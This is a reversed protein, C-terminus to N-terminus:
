ESKTDSKSDKEESEDEVEDCADKLMDGLPSNLASKLKHFQIAQSFLELMSPDRTFLSNLARTISESNGGLLILTKEDSLGLVILSRLDGEDVFEIAHKFQEKMQKNFSSKSLEESKSDLITRKEQEENNNEM